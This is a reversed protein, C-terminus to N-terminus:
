ARGSGPAAGADRNLPHDLRDPFQSRFLDDARASCTKPGAQAEREANPRPYWGNDHRHDSARQRKTTGPRSICSESGGIASTLACFSRIPSGQRALRLPKYGGQQYAFHFGATNAIAKYHDPPGQPRRRPPSDDPFQGADRSSQQRRPPGRLRPETIGGAYDRGSVTDVTLQMLNTLRGIQSDRRDGAAPCPAFKHGLQGDRRRFSELYANSLRTRSRTTPTTPIVEWDGDLV